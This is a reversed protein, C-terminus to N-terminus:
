FMSRRARVVGVRISEGGIKAEHVSADPVAELEAFELERALTQDCVYDRFRSVAGQLEDSLELWLRIRDSVHLDAEKRAQQVARVVDRARGEDILEADLELDLVVIADASPLAECAVGDRPQLLMSYESSELEHGAVRVGEGGPLAEWAGEKSARLVDKMAKGLRPGVARSDVQLRFTAYTDIEGTFEVKKVNVEDAILDAYRRLSELEAGAVTL